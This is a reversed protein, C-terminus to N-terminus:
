SCPTGPKRDRVGRCCGPGTAIRSTLRTCRWRRCTAWPTWPSTASAGKSRRASATAVCGAPKRPRSAGKGPPAPGLQGTAPHWRRAVQWLLLLRQQLQPLRQASEEMPLRYSGSLLHRGGRPAPGVGAAAGPRATGPVAPAPYDGMTRRERRQHLGAGQAVITAEQRPTHHKNTSGM